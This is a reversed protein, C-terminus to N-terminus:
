RFDRSRASLGQLLDSHDLVKMAVLHMVSQEGEGERQWRGFVTLLRAALLPKRQSEVVAPWVIVNISGTDDELTVFM